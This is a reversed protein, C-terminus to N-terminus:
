CPNKLHFFSFFLSSSIYMTSLTKNRNQCSVFIVKLLIINNTIATIKTTTSTATTKCFFASSFFINLRKSPVCVFGCKANNYFTQRGAADQLIDVIFYECVRLTAVTQIYVEGQHLIITKFGGSGTMM